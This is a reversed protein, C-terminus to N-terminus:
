WGPNNEEIAANSTMEHSPIPWYFDRPMTVNSYWTIFAAEPFDQAIENAMDQMTEGFIGWRLLDFKRLGEFGLERLREDQLFELFAGRSGTASAPVHADEPTYITATASAGSGGGGSITITPPADYVGSEYFTIATEDRDLIIDTVSGGEVVATASATQGGIGTSITVTPESTYGSGGDTVTIEKVGKDWSRERLENVLDIVENTPGGNIANQAEAYMLVVDSYRLLPFNIPTLVNNKPLNTEFERRYKGPYLLYKERETAPQTDLNIEASATTAYRFHGATPTLWSGATNWWKRADADDFSNYYKATINLYGDSRGIVTNNPHTRVGILYGIQGEESYEDTNNGRFEVEWISERIDYQDAALNIFIQAYSDTISHTPDDIVMKAWKSAEAYRSEDNLPEGAMHLNVRALLGRVASKTVRGAHGVDAINQVLPEAAEMDQVIQEYVERVPRRPADTNNIDNIPEIIIPVDGWQRVLLFYYYGRLFLAEGRVRDRYEQSIEENRDINDLLYNARRIGIYNYRWHDSMYGDSYSFNYNWPGSTLTTRNMYGADAEWGFLDARRYHPGNGLIDYVGNLAKDLQDATQFYNAPALFDTPTTELFDKECSTFGFFLLLM